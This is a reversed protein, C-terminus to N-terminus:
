KKSLYPEVYIQEWRREDRVLRRYTGGEHNLLNELSTPSVSREKAIREIRAARKEGARRCGKDLCARAAALLNEDKESRKPMPPRKGQLYAKFENAVWDPIISSGAALIGFVGSVDEYTFFLDLAMGWREDISVSTDCWLKKLFEAWNKENEAEAINEDRNM